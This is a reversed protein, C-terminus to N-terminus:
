NRTQVTFEIGRYAGQFSKVDLGSFEQIKSAVASYFTCKDYATYGINQRTVKVTKENIGSLQTGDSSNVIIEQVIAGKNITINWVVAEYNFLALVIPRESSYIKIYVKNASPDKGRHIPGEYIGIAHLEAEGSRKKNSPLGVHIVACENEETSNNIVIAADDCRVSSYNTKGDKICKYVAAHTSNIM